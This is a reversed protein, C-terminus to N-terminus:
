YLGELSNLINDKIQRTTMEGIDKGSVTPFILKYIRNLKRYIELRAERGAQDNDMLVVIKTIPMRMLKNVQEESLTKGFVSVANKVGAEHLKWVDGQGETIFLCSKETARQIARHYNYFYHRKNFGTPYFLFKPLRYAKTSRGIIGVLDSGNDNHIPIIARDKM